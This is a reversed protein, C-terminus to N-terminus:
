QPSGIGTSFSPCVTTRVSSTSSSGFAPRRDSQSTSSAGATVVIRRAPVYLVYAGFGGTSGTKNFLRTGEPTAAMRKVPVLQRAIANGAQLPELALPYAYQEWGLAQTMAGVEYYGVHTGEIARRVMPDLGSPDINLQVFRILDAATTKIGYAEADLVGPNVRVPKDGRYGATLPTLNAAKLTADTLVGMRMHGVTRGAPQSLTIVRSGCLFYAFGSGSAMCNVDNSHSM